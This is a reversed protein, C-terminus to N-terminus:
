TPVGLATPLPVLPVGPAGPLPSPGHPQPAVSTFVPPSPLGRQAARTLSTALLTICEPYLLSVSATGSVAFGSPADEVCM